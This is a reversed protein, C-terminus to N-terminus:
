QKLIDNIDQMIKYLFSECKTQNSSEIYIRIIPETNSPRLHIWTDDDDMFKIGDINIFKLHSNRKQIEDLIKDVTINMDKTEIKSKIM